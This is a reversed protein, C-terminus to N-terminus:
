HPPGVSSGSGLGITASVTSASSSNNSSSSSKGRLGLLAGAGAAAVGGVIAIVVGKSMGARTGAAAGSGAGARDAAETTQYNTQAITATAIMHGQNTSTVSATVQIHFPGVGVPRMGTVAARGTDNTVVTFTREGNSFVVSPAQDPSIFNVVAGAVPLNNKDRVEIIPQLATKKSVINVGKDGAVVVINLESLDLTQSTRGPEWISPLLMQASLSQGFGAFAVVACAAIALVFRSV